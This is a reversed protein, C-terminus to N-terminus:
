QSVVRYAIIDANPCSTDHYWHFDGAVGHGGDVNMGYADRFRVKVVVDDGVPAADAGTWKIWGAAETGM